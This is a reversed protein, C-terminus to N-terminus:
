VHARGIKTLPVTPATPTNETPKSTSEVTEPLLSASWQKLITASRRDFHLQLLATLRPNKDENAATPGDPMGPPLAPGGAAKQEIMAKLYEPTIAIGPRVSIPKAPAATQATGAPQPATTQAQAGASHGLVIALILARIM